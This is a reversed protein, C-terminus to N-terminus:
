KVKYGVGGFGLTREPEDFFVDDPGEPHWLPFYVLGPEILELGDFFRLIESWSRYRAPNGSRAGLEEMLKIVGPPAGDPTGHSIAIYSGPALADRVTYVAEYADQDDVVVHLILLFLVGMPRGFDLLGKVEPHNLITDPQRVDAQIAIANPNDKLMALSHAVAVPDIDVYVVRAAPNAEQAVQHVNGVTPIGSGLDLIQDVGKEKVLFNVVRRLFARAAHAGLRADPMIELVKKAALRDAEFNHYGGLMCDYIRAQNPRELDLGEPIWANKSM